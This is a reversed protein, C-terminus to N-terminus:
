TSGTTIKRATYGTPLTGEEISRQLTDLANAKLGKPMLTTAGAKSIQLYAVTKTGERIAYNGHEM